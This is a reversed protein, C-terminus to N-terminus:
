WQNRTLICLQTTVRSSACWKCADCSRNWPCILIKETAYNIGSVFTQELVCCVCCPRAFFSLFIYPGDNSILNRKLFWMTKHMRWIAVLCIELPKMLQRNADLLAHVNFTEDSLSYYLNCTCMNRKPTWTPTVFYNCLAFRVLTTTPQKKSCWLNKISLATM